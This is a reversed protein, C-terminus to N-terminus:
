VCVRRACEHVCACACVAANRRMCAHLSLVLGSLVSAQARPHLCVSDVLLVARRAERLM